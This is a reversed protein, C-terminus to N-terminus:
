NLKQLLELLKDRRNDEPHELVHFALKRRAEGIERGKLGLDAMEGGSLALSRLVENEPHRVGRRLTREVPLCEIPFGSLDCFARWRPIPLPPLDRLETLDPCSRVPWLHALLGWRVLEGAREPQGSLLIKELEVKIREGSVLTMRGANRQIATETEAEIDFGLQAAFRVARLMRLADEAFRRDPEGVCRIVGVRLDDQGGYPDIVEGSPGLAMANITFDRRALDEALGVDFRVGDPHRGDAYGDERRFTTVEIPGAQTLVTVTGHQIGTPIVREFLAMVQEPRASTCVDYDGPTRELLLDRVCGGVPHAAYGGQRLRELCRIVDAPIPWKEM